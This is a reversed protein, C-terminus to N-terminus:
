CCCCGGDDDDGTTTAAGSYVTVAFVEVVFDYLRLLFYLHRQVACQVIYM